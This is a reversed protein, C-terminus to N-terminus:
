KRIWHSLLLPNTFDTPRDIVPGSAGSWSGLNNAMTLRSGSNEIRYIGLYTEGVHASGWSDLALVAWAESIGMQTDANLGILDVTDGPHYISILEQQITGADTPTLNITAPVTSENAVFTGSIFYKTKYTFSGDYHTASIVGWEDLTYYQMGTWTSRTEVTREWRYTGASDKWFKWDDALTEVATQWKEGSDDKGSDPTWTGLIALDGPVPDGPAPGPGSGPCGLVAGLLWAVILTRVTLNRVTNM